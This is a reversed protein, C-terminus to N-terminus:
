GRRAGGAMLLGLETETFEETRGEAVIAGEYMVAFRDSLALLEDLEASILLIAKGAARMRLLEQHIREIAGIDVGRTPQAAVVVRPEFALERGVVLKQQNGGSLAAAPTDLSPVRVQLREAIAQAHRRIPQFRLLGRHSFPVERQRGLIANRSVPLPPVLGRRLRDSPIHAGGLRRFRRPGPESAPGPWLPQGNIWVEGAAPPCLGTVVEELELQGNGEVGAIGLIEGARVHLTVDKLRERGDRGVLRLGRAELLVRGAEAQGRRAGLIVKRGVMMEALEETTTEATRVTGVNRGNRLVTVRDTFAMTERLKHTIFIIAKGREKLAQMVRFLEEVEQPTLVATPEDLILVQVDRLLAKLIEVRQQEGVSLEEIRADVDVALGYRRAVAQVQERAARFDILGRRTPEMGAILNETVTLRDVLMFHQHVMGIGLRIAHAPGTVEVPQGGVWIEGEDKAYLGYLIRVLTSKGAGNEGLLGHIEGPLVDLDVRDNAVVPGFRKVIGRMRVAYAGSAAPSIGVM